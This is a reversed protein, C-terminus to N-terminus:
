PAPLVTLVITITAVERNSTRIGVTAFELHRKRQVEARLMLRAETTEVPAHFEAATRILRPRGRQGDAWAWLAVLQGAAEILLVGPFIPDGPFHQPYVWHAPGVDVEGEIVGDELRTVRAIQRMQHIPLFTEDLERLCSPVSEHVVDTM